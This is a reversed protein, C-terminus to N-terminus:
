VEMQISKLVMDRGDLIDLQYSGCERCMFQYDEVEGTYRCERCRILVQQVEIILESKDAVSGEKLHDFAVKLLHPEVGSLVGVKVVVKIVSKGHNQRVNEEILRLLSNAVSFEHM